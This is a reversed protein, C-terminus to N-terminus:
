RIVSIVQILNVFEATDFPTEDAYIEWKLLQVAAGADAQRSVRPEEVYFRLTVEIDCYSTFLDAFVFPNTFIGNWGNV